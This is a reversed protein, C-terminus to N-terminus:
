TQERRFKRSVPFLQINCHYTQVPSTDEEVIKLVRRRMARIEDIIKERGADSVSFGIWSFNSKGDAGNEISRKGLDTMSAVYNHLGLKAGDTDTALTTDSAVVRKDQLEEVLNLEKLKAIAGKAQSKSITPRVGAAIIEPNDAHFSKCSLLDRIVPIYWRSYFEYEKKGLVRPDAEKFKMLDEYYRKKDKPQKAQDYHVILEFYRAERISLKLLSIFGAITKNSMNSQRTVVQRFFSHSKLGMRHSIARYSFATSGIAQYYEYVDKLYVRYEIYNFVCPKKPFANESTKIV